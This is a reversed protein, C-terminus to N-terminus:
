NFVYRYAIRSLLAARISFIEWIFISVQQAKCGDRRILEIGKADLEPEIQDETEFMYGFYRKKTELVCPLYVKEFKLKMPDPFVSSVKKAIDRGIKFAEDKTKGRFLIFLSDTDGYIVEAGWEPTANVM